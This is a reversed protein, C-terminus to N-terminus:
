SRRWHRRTATMRLVMVPTVGPSVSIDCACLTRRGTPSGGDRFRRARRWTSHTGSSIREPLRIRALPGDALRQADFVLCESLDRNMDVTMTVLYGDDEGTSGIRPAMVTESGFVGEGLAYREETGTM